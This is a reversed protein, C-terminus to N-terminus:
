DPPTAPISQGWDEGSGTVDSGSGLSSPPAGRGVKSWETLLASMVSTVCDCHWVFLLVLVGPFRLQQWLIDFSIKSMNNRFFGVKESGVLHQSDTLQLFSQIVLAITGHLTIGNRASITGARPQASPIRNSNRWIKVAGNENKQGM